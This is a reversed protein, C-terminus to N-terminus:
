GSLIGRGPLEVGGATVTWLSMSEGAHDAYTPSLDEETLRRSNVSCNRKRTMIDYYRGVTEAANSDQYGAQIGGWLLCGTTTNLTGHEYTFDLFRHIQYQPAFWYVAMSHIMLDGLRRRYIHGQRDIFRLFQQVPESKFFHLDAVFFNNYFGCMDLRISRKPEFEARRKLWLSSMRQTVKMEYSCMRFGYVYEQQQMLDFVDYQIPSHIFSDEDLRFVYRYHCRSQQNWWEFFDWIGIAFWHMMHRYGEPFLPFAYWNEPNDNLNYQPRSWYITDLLDVLRVVGSVGLRSELEEL